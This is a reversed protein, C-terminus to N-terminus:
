DVSVLTAADETLRVNVRANRAVGPPIRVKV